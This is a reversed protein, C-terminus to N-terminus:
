SECCARSSNPTDATASTVCSAPKPTSMPRAHMKKWRAFEGIVSGAGITAIRHRRGDHLKLNVSVSGATVFYVADAPEGYRVISEGPAFVTRLLFPRLAEIERATFADLMAHAALPMEIDSVRVLGASALIRDECWELAFDISPFV